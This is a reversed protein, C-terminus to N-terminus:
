EVGTNITGDQLGQLVEQALRLKGESLLDTNVDTLHLPTAIIMGGNGALVQPFIEQLASILDPKISVAWQSADVGEPLSEGILPIGFSSMYGVLDANAVEPAIFAAKVLYRPLVDANSTYQSEPTDTPMMQSVPYRYSGWTFYPNTCLSCFFHYGNYFALKALAGQEDDLAIMGVRFENDSTLMGAIYGALFAEQDLPIGGAGVSTLNPASPLDPIGVALFQVAPAAAALAALGPDPPLAVVIKLASGEFPLDAPTLTNLTKFGLGSAQALDYVITQYQDYQAAPMDAPLLLIAHPFGPTPSATPQPTLSAEPTASPGSCGALILLALSVLSLTLSPKSHL